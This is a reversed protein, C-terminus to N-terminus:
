LDKVMIRNHDRIKFDPKIVKLLSNTFESVGYKNLHIEDTFYHTNNKFLDGYNVYVVGEATMATEFAKMNEYYSKDLQINAVPSTFLTIDVDHKDCLDIIQKLFKYNGDLDFSMEQLETEGRYKEETYFYSGYSDFDQPMINFSENLLQHIGWITNYEAYRLFPIYRYAYWKPGFQKFHNFVVENKLYPFFKPIAFDSIEEIDAAWPDVQLYLHDIDNNNELFIKLMLYQDTITSGDVAINMGKLGTQSEIEKIDITTYARSSGHVAYDFQQNQMNYLWQIKTYDGRKYVYSFGYDLLWMVGYILSLLLLLNIFIKKM